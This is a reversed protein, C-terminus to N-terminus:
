SVGVQRAALEEEIYTLSMTLDLVLGVVLLPSISKANTHVARLVEEVKAKGAVLEADTANLCYTREQRTKLDPISTKM